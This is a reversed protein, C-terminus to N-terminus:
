EVNVQVSGTDAAKPVTVTLVGDSLKATVRSSDVPQPLVVTRTFSSTGSFIRETSIANQKPTQPATM